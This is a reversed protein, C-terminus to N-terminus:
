QRQIRNSGLPSYFTTRFRFIRHCIILKKKRNLWYWWCQDNNFESILASVHTILLHFFPPPPTSSSSSNIPRRLISRHAARRSLFVTRTGPGLIRSVSDCPKWVEVPRSTGSQIADMWEIWGDCESRGGYGDCWDGKTTEKGFGCIWM